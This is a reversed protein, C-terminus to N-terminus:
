SFIEALEDVSVGEKVQRLEVYSVATAVSLLPKRVVDAGTEIVTVL